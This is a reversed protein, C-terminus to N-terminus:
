ISDARIQRAMEELLDPLRLTTAADAQCSFGNGRKGGLVIVIVGGGSNDDIGAHQRVLTCADDYKGPGLAM